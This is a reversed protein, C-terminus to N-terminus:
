TYVLRDVEKSEISTLNWGGWIIGLALNM